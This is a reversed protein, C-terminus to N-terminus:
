KGSGKWFADYFAQLVNEFKTGPDLRCDYLIGLPTVRCHGGAFTFDTFATTPYPEPTELQMQPKKELEAVRKELEEIRKRLVQGEPASAYTQVDGWTGNTSPGTTKTQALGYGAFM